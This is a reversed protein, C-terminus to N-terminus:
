RGISLRAFRKLNITLGLEKGITEIQQRITKSNDKIFKQELLCVEEFFKKMKGVAMKEFVSEPKGSQAIQAMVTEKEKAVVVSDLDSEQLAVPNTVAAQMCIDKALTMLATKENENTTKDISLEVMAAVSNDAHVYINVLGNEPAQFSIAQTVEIKESIKSILEDLMSKLPLGTSQINLTMLSAVDSSEPATISTAVVHKLFSKMDSTRASFDTECAIKAISGNQGNSIGDVTGENTENDGRKAAVAVGKKRLITVAEEIDGNSEILAKKCDMMGVNTKQRLQAILEKTIDAM